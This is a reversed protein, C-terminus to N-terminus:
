VTDWQMFISYNIYGKSPCAIKGGKGGLNWNTVTAFLPLILIQADTHTQGLLPHPLPIYMRWKKESEKAQEKSDSTNEWVPYSWSGLARQFEQFRPQSGSISGVGASVAPCLCETCQLTWESSPPSHTCTMQALAELGSSRSSSLFDLQEVWISAQLVGM